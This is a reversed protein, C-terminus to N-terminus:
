SQFRRRAAGVVGLLGTGLLILSSPEPTASPSQLAANFTLTTDATFILTDAGGDLSFGSGNLANSLGAGPDGSSSTISSLLNYGILNSDTVVLASSVSPNLIGAFGPTVPNVVIGFIPGVAYNNGGESFTASTFSNDLFEGGFPAVDATDSVFVFSFDGSFATGNITGTGDGSLTYTITAAHAAIAPLMCTLAALLAARTIKNM